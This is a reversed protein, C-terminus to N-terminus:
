FVVFVIFNFPGKLWHKEIVVILLFKVFIIFIILFNTSLWPSSPRIFFKCSQRNGAYNLTRTLKRPEYMAWNPLTTSYVLQMEASSYSEGFLYGPCSVLFDSPSGGTMSFSQPIRLVGKYDDSETESQGPTTAGSLTRDM